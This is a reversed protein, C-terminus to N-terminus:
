ERETLGAPADRQDVRAVWGNRLSYADPAVDENDRQDVRAVWGNRLSYADPAVDETDRQDVRAVWGNRLSYADPAVIDRANNTTIDQSAVPVASVGAALLTTFITYIQFRM